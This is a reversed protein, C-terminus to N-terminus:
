LGRPVRDLDIQELAVRILASRNAKTLGRAKLEAVLADLRDLDKTYLSICIVKYHIPKAETKRLRPGRPERGDPEPAYFAGSLVGQVEDADLVRAAGLGTDEERGAM